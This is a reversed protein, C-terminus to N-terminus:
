APSIWCTTSSGCCGNPTLGRPLYSREVGNLRYSLVADFSHPLFNEGSAVTKQAIAQLRTPLRGNMQLSASSALACCRHQLGRLSRSKRSRAAAFATAGLSRCDRM